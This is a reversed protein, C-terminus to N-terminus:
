RFAIWREDNHGRYWDQSERPVGTRPQGQGPRPAHGPGSYGADLNRSFVPQTTESYFFVTHAPGLTTNPWAYVEIPAVVAGELQESPTATVQYCYHKGRFLFAEWGLQQEPFDPDTFNDTPIGRAYLAMLTRAEILSRQHQDRLDVTQLDSAVELLMEAIEGARQEVRATREGSGYPVWFSIALVGVAFLVLLNGPNFNRKRPQQGM